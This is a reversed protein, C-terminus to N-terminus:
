GLHRALPDLVRSRWRLEYNLKRAVNRVKTPM